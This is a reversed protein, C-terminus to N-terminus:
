FKVEVTLDSGPFTSGVGTIDVHVAMGAVMLLGDVSPTTTMDMTATTAGDAITLAVGGGSESGGISVSGYVLVTIGAGVPAQKVTAVISAVSVTQPMTTIPGVDSEVGLIGAVDIELQGGSLARLGRGGVYGNVGVYCNETIPSDGFENVAWADAAVLARGRFPVEDVVYGQTNFPLASMNLAMYETEAWVRWILAGVPHAAAVTGKCGRVISSGNQALVEIIEGPTTGSGDPTVDDILYYSPQTETLTAATNGDSASCSVTAANSEMPSLVVTAGVAAANANPDVAAQIMEALAAAVTAATDGTLQFYTYTASGIAIYHAYGPGITIGGVTGSALFTFVVTQPSAVALSGGGLDVSTDGSGMAAGVKGVWPALENVYYLLYVIMYVGAINAAPANFGVFGLWLRGATAEFSPNADLTEAGFGPGATPAGTHGGATVGGINLVGPGGPLVVAELGTGIKSSSYAVIETATARVWGILADDSVTPTSSNKWYFGSTSSYFLWSQQSGPAATLVPATAPRYMTGNAFLVGRTLTPILESGTLEMLYAYWIGDVECYISAGTNQRPTLTLNGGTGRSATCNADPGANILAVLADIITNIPEPPSNGGVGGGAVQTYGYKVDGILVYHEFGTGVKFTGGNLSITTNYMPFNIAQGIPQGVGRWVPGSLVFGSVVGARGFEPGAFYVPM